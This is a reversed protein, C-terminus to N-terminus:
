WPYEIGKIIENSSLSILCHMVIKQFCSRKLEETRQQQQKGQLASM